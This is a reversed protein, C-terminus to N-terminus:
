NTLTFGDVNVNVIVCNKLTSRFSQCGSGVVHSQSRSWLMRIQIVKGFVKNVQLEASPLNVKALQYVEAIDNAAQEAASCSSDACIEPLRSTPETIFYAGQELGAVNSRIKNALNQAIHHARSNLQGAAVSRAMSSDSVGLVFFMSSLFFLLALIEALTFGRLRRLPSLSTRLM